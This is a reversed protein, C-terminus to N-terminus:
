LHHFGEYINALLEHALRIAYNFKDINNGFIVVNLQNEQFSNYIVKIM